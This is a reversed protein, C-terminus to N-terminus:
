KTWNEIKLEKILEFHKTNNTVLIMNNVLAVSGIILDADNIPKGQKKLEASLKGFQDCSKLSLNVINCSSILKQIRELEKEPNDSLYAGKYLECLTIHTICVQERSTVEKVKAAVKPNGRFFEIIVDTDLCFSM